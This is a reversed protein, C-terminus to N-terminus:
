RDSNKSQQTILLDISWKGSGKILLAIVLTLALLHFEFGEGRGPQNYWNMFFGFRAHVLYIAGLMILGFSGAIFRTGLGLMLCIMGISECLIALWTVFGPLGWWKQWMDVTWQPGHGGWIGLLKQLGHPLIVIALGIRLIFPLIDNSTQLLKKM